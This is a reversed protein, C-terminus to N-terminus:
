SSSAADRADLPPGDPMPPAGDIAGRVATVIRRDTDSWPNVPFLPVAQIVTVGDRASPGPTPAPQTLGCDRPLVAPPVTLPSLSQRSSPSGAVAGGALLLLVSVRLTGSALAKRMGDKAYRDVDAAGGPLTQQM